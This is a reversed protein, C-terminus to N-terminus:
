ILTDILEISVIKGTKIMKNIAENCKEIMEGLKNKEQQIVQKTLWFQDPRELLYNLGDQLMSVSIVYDNLKEEVEEIRTKVSNFMDEKPRNM